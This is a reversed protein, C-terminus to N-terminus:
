LALMAACRADDLLPLSQVPAHPMRLVGQLLTAFSDAMGIITQAEFLDTNFNWLVQLTGDIETIGLELDVKTKNAEYAPASLKLGPLELQRNDNNNLGFVIQFLPPFSPNREPRLHEVLMEFPVHQHAYDGFLARKSAQLYDAFSASRDIDSRLVLSNVFCGILAETDKHLRGAVPTGMVVTNERSYRAILLAFVAHLLIFMTVDYQQAFAKLRDTTATDILQTHFRGHFRQQAPRPRDLPLAHVSPIGALRKEWYGLQRQLLDGRQMWDRQWLAYDAYQIALPALPSSHGQSFATYLVTFEDVLLALSWGDCAIHHITFVVIHDDTDLQLLTVRVPLDRGLDFSTDEEKTLWAAIETERREIPVRRLDGQVIPVAFGQKVVQRVEGGDDSFVTRLSEHREILARLTRALTDQNLHGEIRFAKMMNYPTSGDEFKDIFWLRQQTYSLPLSTQAKRPAIGPLEM